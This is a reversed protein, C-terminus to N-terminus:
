TQLILFQKVFLKHYFHLFFSITQWATASSSCRLPSFNYISSFIYLSTCLRKKPFSQGLRGERCINDDNNYHRAHWLYPWLCTYLGVISPLGTVRAVVINCYPPRRLRRGNMRDSSFTKKELFRNNLREACGDNYSRFRTSTLPSLM